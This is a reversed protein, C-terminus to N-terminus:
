ADEMIVFAMVAKLKMEAGRWVAEVTMVFKMSALLIEVCFKTVLLKNVLEAVKEVRM